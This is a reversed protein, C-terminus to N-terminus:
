AAATHKDHRQGSVRGTAARSAPKASPHEASTCGPEPSFLAVIRTRAGVTNARPGSRDGVNARVLTAPRSSLERAALAAYVARSDRQQSSGLIQQQQALSIWRRGALDNLV